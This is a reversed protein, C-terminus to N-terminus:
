KMEKKAQRMRDLGTKALVLAPFNNKLKKFKKPTKKKWNEGGPRTHASNPHFIIKDRERGIEDQRTGNKSFIVVSLQKKIKKFKKSNKKPIKERPDLIFPIPTQVKKREKEAQRIGIQIFIIGFLQERIKQSKKSNKKTIQEGPYLILPIRTQFEKIEKEAQRM